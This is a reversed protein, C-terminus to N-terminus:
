ASLTPSCLCFLLALPPRLLLSCSVQEQLHDWMGIVPKRYLGANTAVLVQPCSLPRVGDRAGGRDGPDKLPVPAGLISDWGEGIWLSSGADGSIGTTPPNALVRGAGRSGSVWSRQGACGWIARLGEKRAGAGLM